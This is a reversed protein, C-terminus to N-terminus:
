RAVVFQYDGSNLVLPQTEDQQKEIAEHVWLYYVSRNVRAWLDYRVRIYPLWQRQYVKLEVENEIGVILQHQTNTVAVWVNEVQQMQQIIFPVDEVKIAYKEVPTVLFYQRDQYWLISAFLQVLEKRLIPEGQHFWNGNTDIYIDIKKNHKPRWKHVPLSTQQGIQEAIIELKDM